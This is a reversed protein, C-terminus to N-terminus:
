LLKECCVFAECFEYLNRVIREASPGFHTWFPNHLNGDLTNKRNCNKAGTRQASPNVALLTPPSLGRVGRHYINSRLVGTMTQKLRVADPPAQAEIALGGWDAYEAAGSTRRGPAKRAGQVFWGASYVQLCRQDTWVEVRRGTPACIVLSAQSGVLSAVSGVLPVPPADQPCIRASKAPPPSTSTNTPADGHLMFCHDLGRTVPLRYLREGLRTSERYLHAYIEM